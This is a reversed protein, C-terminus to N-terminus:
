KIDILNGKRINKTTKDKLYNSIYVFFQLLLLFLLEILNSFFILDM